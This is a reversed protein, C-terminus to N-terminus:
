NITVNFTVTATQGNTLSNILANVTNTGSTFSCTLATRAPRLSSGAQHCTSSILPNPHPKAQM